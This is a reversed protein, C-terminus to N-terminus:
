QVTSADAAASEVTTGSEEGQMQEQALREFFTMSRCETMYPVNLLESGTQDLLQRIERRPEEHLQGDNDLFSRLPLCPSMPQPTVDGDRVKESSDCVVSLDDEDNADLPSEDISLCFENRRRPGILGYHVLAQFLVVGMWAVIGFSFDIM